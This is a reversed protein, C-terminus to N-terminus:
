RFSEKVIGSLLPLKELVQWSPIENEDPIADKLETKLREHIDKHQLVLYTMLTLVNGTTEFGAALISNADTALRRFTKEEPPLIDSQAVEWQPFPLNAVVIQKL